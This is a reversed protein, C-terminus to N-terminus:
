PQKKRNDEVVRVMDPNLRLFSRDAHCNSCVIDCKAIEEMIEERRSPGCYSAMESIHFKKETGPRHDFQMVWYGHRRHCDACPTSSKLDQIQSWFAKRRGTTRENCCKKCHSNLGDKQRRMVSFDSADKMEQCRACQKKDPTKSPDYSAITKARWAEHSKSQCSRCAASRGFLGRKNRHFRDLPLDLSCKTCRKCEM